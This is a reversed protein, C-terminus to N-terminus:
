GRSFVQSNNASLKGSIGANTNATTTFTDKNNTVTGTTGAGISANGSVEANQASTYNTKGLDLTQYATILKDCSLIRVTKNEKDFDLTITIRSIRDAPMHSTNRISIVIRKEIQSDDIIDDTNITKSSLTNNLASIFKDTATEKKSIERIIAAQAQPSLDFITKPKQTEAKDEEIFYANVKVYKNITDKNEILSITNYRKTLKGKPFCSAVIIAVLLAVILLKKM